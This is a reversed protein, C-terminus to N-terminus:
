PNEAEQEISGTVRPARDIRDFALGPMVALARLGPAKAMAPAWPTSSRSPRHANLLMTYVVAAVLGRDPVHSAFCRQCVMGCFLTLIDKSNLRVVDSAAHRSLGEYRV